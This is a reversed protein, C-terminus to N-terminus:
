LIKTVILALHYLNAKKPIMTTCRPSINEAVVFINEDKSLHYKYIRIISTLADPKSGYKVGIDIMNVASPAIKMFFDNNLDITIIYVFYRDYKRRKQYWAEIAGNIANQLLKCCDGKPIHKGKGKEM